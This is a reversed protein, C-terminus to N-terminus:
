LLMCEYMVCLRLDLPFKKKKFSHPLIVNLSRQLSYFMTAICMIFMIGYNFMFVYCLPFLPSTPEVGDNVTRGRWREGDQIM